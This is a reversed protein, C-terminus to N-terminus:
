KQLVVSLNKKIVPYELIKFGANQAISISEKFQSDTVHGGPESFLVTGGKKISAYIETFLDGAGNNASVNVRWYSHAAM